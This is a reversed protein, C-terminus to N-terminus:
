QRQRRLIVYRLESRNNFVRKCHECPFTPKEGKVIKRASLPQSISPEIRPAIIRAKGIVVESETVRHKEQKVDFQTTDYLWSGVKSATSHTNDLPPLTAETVDVV